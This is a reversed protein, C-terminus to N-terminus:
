RRFVREHTSSIDKGRLPDCCLSCVDGFFYKTNNAFRFKFLAIINSKDINREEKDFRTRMRTLASESICVRNCLRITIGVREILLICAISM